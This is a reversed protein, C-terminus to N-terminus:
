SLLKLRKRFRDAMNNFGNSDLILLAEELADWDEDLEALNALTSGIMFPEGSERALDLAKVYTQRAEQFNELNHYAVALNNWARSEVAKYHTEQALKITDKYTAIAKDLKSQREWAIAWNNLVNIRRLPDEGAANMAQELAKEIKDPAANQDLYSAAVNNLTRAWRGHNGLAHWLLASKKYYSIAKKFDGKHHAIQGLTTLAIARAWSEGKLAENANAQADESKGLRWQVASLLALVDHTEEHNELAKLAEKYKGAREYAYSQLLAIDYNQPVEHLLDAAREPFGRGLVETAWALYTEQLHQTDQEEWFPQSAQYLSFAQLGHLLRALQISLNGLLDRRSNLYDKALSRAYPQILANVLGASTLEKIARTLENTSIALAAKILKSDPEDLLALCLYVNQSTESFGSLMAEFADKLSEGTLRANVLRPIGSTERMIDSEHAQIDKDLVSLELVTKVPFPPAESSSIIVNNKPKLNRLRKIIDKSEDDVQEWDDIILNNKYHLLRRLITEAGDSLIDGIIPELTAFPLGLRGALFTGDLHKLLSTKGIGIGGKVWAWEGEELSNLRKLENDRGIFPRIFQTKAEAETYTLTIGYDEAEARVSQVYESKNLILLAYYRNLEEPERPPASKLTYAQEVLPGVGTVDGRQLAQEALQLLAERMRGALYERTKLVWEELEWSLELRLDLLFAGRYLEVCEAFRQADAHALFDTADCSAKSWVKSHDAGFLEKSARRLQSLASSLSNLPDKAEMYFLESLHDRPTTGELALYALLLLPKQKTFDSGALGLGGLTNLHM